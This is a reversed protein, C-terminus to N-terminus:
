RTMGKKRQGKKCKLTEEEILYDDMDVSPGNQWNAKRGGPGVFREVCGLLKALRTLRHGAGGGGKKAMIKTVEYVADHQKGNKVGADNQHLRFFDVVDSVHKKLETYKFHALMFAATPPGSFRAYTPDISDLARLQEQFFQVCTAVSARRLNAPAGPIEYLKGVEWLAEKMAAVIGKCGRFFPSKYEIDFQKFASFLQDAADKVQGSNDFTYYEEIVANEDKVYHVVVNVYDPVTETLGNAWGYSRTHGDLKYMFGAATVAMHVTYHAERLKTLYSKAKRWHRETDRQVPADPVALWKALPMKLTAPKGVKAASSIQKQKKVATIAAKKAARTEMGSTQPREKRSM